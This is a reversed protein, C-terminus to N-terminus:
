LVLMETEFINLQVKFSWLMCSVMICVIQLIHLLSMDQAATM